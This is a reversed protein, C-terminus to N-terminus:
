GAGVRTCRNRVELPIRNTLLVLYAGLSWQFKAAWLNTLSTRCERPFCVDTTVLLSLDLAEEAEKRGRKQGEKEEEGNEKPAVPCGSLVMARM